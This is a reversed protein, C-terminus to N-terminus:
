SRGRLLKPVTLALRPMDGRAHALAEDLASSANAEITKGHGVLLMKPAYGSLQRRPPTLRLMPHVGARRELRFLPATGVAEAVILAKKDPWWLAVERWARNSIVPITMFPAVADPLRRLPVGLRDAIPQCDRNHRDLLQIVGVPRGLDQASAMADPHDFPDILWVRGGDTLAHASRAM